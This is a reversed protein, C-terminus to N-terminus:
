VTRGTSLHGPEVPGLLDTYVHLMSLVNHYVKSKTLTALEYNYGSDHMGAHKKGSLQWAEIISMFNIM